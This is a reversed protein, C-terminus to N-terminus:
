TSQCGDTLGSGTAVRSRPWVPREGVGVVNTTPEVSPGTGPRFTPVLVDAADTPMLMFCDFAGSALIVRGV